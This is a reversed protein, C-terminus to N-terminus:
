ARKRAAVIYHTALNDHGRESAWNEYRVYLGRLGPLRTFYDAARWLPTVHVEDWGAFAEQLGSEYCHDYYAPFVTEVPRRMLWAVVRSGVRFPIVRNAIAYVAYRGSLIAVFSGGPKAYTRFAEAAAPLDRFHELVQWAVILDFRERLEPVSRQADLVYTEDYSGPPAEALEGGEIDVGVYLVGEPRSGPAITPRRGAGVDLVSAGPVLAEDVVRWFETDRRGDYRPPLRYERTSLAM